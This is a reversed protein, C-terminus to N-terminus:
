LKDVEFKLGLNFSVGAKKDIVNYDWGEVFITLTAYAVKSESSTVAVSIGNGAEGVVFKGTLDTSPKVKGFGAHEQVKATATPVLANPTHKAYFTSAENAVYSGSPIGNINDLVDYESAELSSYIPASEYEGYWYEKNDGDVDYYDSPSLSLVGGVKTEGIHNAADSPQMLFKNEGDVYVRITSESNEEASVVSETLWITKNAALEDMNYVRFAFPLVVYNDKQAVEDFSTISYEPARYLTFPDASNYTRSGTTVPKLFDTAYDTNDLYHRIALLSFGSRSKAWVISNTVEEPTGENDVATTRELNYTTLDANTFIGDNDVLGVNLLSSSAVTTGVFSASATRSYAYWALSGATTGLMGISVLGALLGLRLSLKKNNKM